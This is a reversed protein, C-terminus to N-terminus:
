HLNFDFDYDKKIKNWDKNTVGLDQILGTEINMLWGHIHLDRGEAWAKQV